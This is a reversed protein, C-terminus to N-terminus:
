ARAVASGQQRSHEPLYDVKVLEVVLLQQLQQGRKQSGCGGERKELLVLLLSASTCSSGRTQAGKCVFGGGM